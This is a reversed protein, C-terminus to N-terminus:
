GGGGAGERDNPSPAGPFRFRLWGSALLGRSCCGRGVGSLRCPERTGLVATGAGLACALGLQVAAACAGDARHAESAWPPRHTLCCDLQRLGTVGPTHRAQTQPLPQWSDQKEPNASKQTKTRPPPHTISVCVCPQHILGHLSGRGPPHRRSHCRGAAVTQWSLRQLELAPKTKPRLDQCLHRSPSSRPSSRTLRHRRRELSRPGTQWESPPPRSLCM